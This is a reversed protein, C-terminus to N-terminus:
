RSCCFIENWTPSATSTVPERICNLPLSTMSAASTLSPPFVILSRSSLPLGTQARLPILYGEWEDILISLRTAGPVTHATGPRYCKSPELPVRSKRDNEKGAGVNRNFWLLCRAPPEQTDPACPVSCSILTGDVRLTARDKHKTEFFFHLDCRQTDQSFLRRPSM